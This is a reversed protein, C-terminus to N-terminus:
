VHARGIEELGGTMYVEEVGGTMYVEELGGSMYVEEVGGRMYVEELGGRIYMEEWISRKWVGVGGGALYVEWISKREYLGGRKYVEEVGGNNCGM